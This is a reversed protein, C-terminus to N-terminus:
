RKRSRDSYENSSDRGSKGSRSRKHSPSDTDKQKDGVSRKDKVRELVESESDSRLRKRRRSCHPSRSKSRSRHRSKVYDSNDRFNRGENHRVRRTEAQQEVSQKGKVRDNMKESKLKSFRESEEDSKEYFNNDSNDRNNRKNDTCKESSMEETSKELNHRKDKNRKEKIDVTSASNSDRFSHNRRRSYKDPSVSRERSGCRYRRHSRPSDTSTDNRYRSSGTAAEKEKRCLRSKKRSPSQSRKQRRRRSPTSRTRSRPRRRPPSRRHLVPSNRNCKERSQVRLRGKEDRLRNRVAPNDPRFRRKQRMVNSDSASDSDSKCRKRQSLQSLSLRSHICDKKSCKCSSEGDYSSTSEPLFRVPSIRNRGSAGKCLAISQKKPTVEMSKKLPEEICKFAEKDDDESDSLEGEEVSLDTDSNEDSADSDDNDNNESFQSASGTDLTVDDHYDIGDMTNDELLLIPVGKAEKETVKEALKECVMSNSKSVKSHKKSDGVDLNPKPKKPSIIKSLIPNKDSLEFYRVENKSDCKSQDSKSPTRNSRRVGQLGTRDKSNECLNSPEKVPSRAKIRPSKRLTQESSTPRDKPKRRDKEKDPQHSTFKKGNDVKPENDSKTNVRNHGSYKAKSADNEWQKTKSYVKKNGVHHINVKDTDKMISKEIGTVNIKEKDAVNSSSILKDIDESSKRHVHHVQKSGKGGKDILPKNVLMKKDEMMKTKEKGHLPKTCKVKNIETDKENCSIDDKRKDLVDYDKPNLAEDRTSDKVIDDTDESSRTKCLDALTISKKSNGSSDSSGFIAKERADSDASNSSDTEGEIDSDSLSSESENITFRKNAKTQFKDKKFNDSKLGRSKDSNYSTKSEVYSNSSYKQSVSSESKSKTVDKKREKHTKRGELLKPITFTKLSANQVTLSMSPDAANRKKLKSSKTKSIYGEYDGLKEEFTLNENKNLSGTKTTCTNSKMEEHGNAAKAVKLPQTKGPKNVGQVPAKGKINEKADKRLKPDHLRPITLKLKLSDNEKRQKEALENKLMMHEVKLKMIKESLEKTTDRFQSRVVNNERQKAQHQSDINRRGKEKKPDSSTPKNEGEFLSHESIEKSDSIDNKGYKNNKRNADKLDTEKNMKDKQETSSSPCSLSAKNRDVNKGKEKTNEKKNAEIKKNKVSSKREYKNSNRKDNSKEKGPSTKKSVKAPFHKKNGTKHTESDTTDTVSVQSPKKRPSRRLSQNVYKDQKETNTKTCNMDDTQHRKSKLNQKKDREKVSVNKTEKKKAGNKKEVLNLVPKSSKQKRNKSSESPQTDCISKEAKDPRGTKSIGKNDNLKLNDKTIESLEESAVSIKLNSESNSKRQKNQTDSNIGSYKSNKKKSVNTELSKSSGAKVVEKEDQVVSPIVCMENNKVTQAKIQVETIQDIKKGKSRPSLNAFKVAPTEPRSSEAGSSPSSLKESIVTSDKPLLFEPIEDAIWYPNNKCPIAARENLDTVSENVKGNKVENDKMTENKKEVGVTNESPKGHVTKEKCKENEFDISKGTANLHSNVNTNKFAVEKECPDGQKLEDDSETESDSSSGSYSSCTSCDTPHTSGSSSGSDGSSSENDSSSLEADFNNGERENDVIMEEEGDHRKGNQQAKDVVEVSKATSVKKSESADSNGTYSTKMQCSEIKENLSANEVEVNNAAPESYVDKDTHNIISCEYINLGAPNEETNFKEVLSKNNQLENQVCNLLCQLMHSRDPSIGEAKYAMKLKEPSTSKPSNKNESLNPCQGIGIERENDVGMEVDNIMKNNLDIHKDVGTNIMVENGINDDTEMPSSNSKAKNMEEMEVVNEGFSCVNEEVNEVNETQNDKRELIEPKDKQNKLPENVRKIDDDSDLDTESNSSYTEWSSGTGSEDSSSTSEGSYSSGSDDSDSFESEDESHLSDTRESMINSGFSGDSENGSAEATNRKAEKGEYVYLDKIGTREEFGSSKDTTSHTTQDDCNSEMAEVNLSEHNNNIIKEELSHELHSSEKEMRVKNTVCETVAVNNRIDADVLELSKRSSNDVMDAEKDLYFSDTINSVDEVTKSQNTETPIDISYNEEMSIPTDMKDGATISTLSQGTNSDTNTSEEGKEGVKLDDSFEATPEKIITNVNNLDMNTSESTDNILKLDSNETTTVLDSSEITKSKMQINEDKTDSVDSESDSSGSSSCSDSSSTNSDSQSSSSSSESDVVSQEATIEITGSHVNNKNCTHINELESDVDVSKLREAANLCKLTNLEKDDVDMKDTNDNVTENSTQGLENERYTYDDKLFEPSRTKDGVSKPHLHRMKISCNKDTCVLNQLKGSSESSITDESNETDDTSMSIDGAEDSVSNFIDSDSVSTISSITESTVCRRVRKRRKTRSDLRQLNRGKNNEASTIIETTEVCEESIKQADAEATCINNTIVSTKGSNLSSESKSLLRASRRRGSGPTEGNKSSGSVNPSTNVSNCEKDFKSDAQNLDMKDGNDSDDCPIQSEINVNLTITSQIDMPEFGNNQFNDYESNNERYKVTNETLFSHSDKNHNSEGSISENPILEDTSKSKIEMDKVGKDLKGKNKLYNKDKSKDSDMYDTSFEGYADEYSTENLESVDASATFYKEGSITKDNDTIEMDSVENSADSYSVIDRKFINQGVEKKNNKNELHKDNITRSSALDNKRISIKLQELFEKEADLNQSEKKTIRKRSKKEASKSDSKLLTKCTSETYSDDLVSVKCSDTKEVVSKTLSIISSQKKSIVEGLDTNQKGDSIRKLRLKERLDLVKTSKNRSDKIGSKEYNESDEIKKVNKENVKSEVVTYNENENITVSGKDKDRDYQLRDGSSIRQRNEKALEVSESDKELNKSNLAQKVKRQREDSSKTDSESESYRKSSKSDDTRRDKDRRRENKDSDNTRDRDSDNTRDRNSYNTRDRNSDNTRSKDSDTRIKSRIDKEKDKSESRRRDYKDVSKSYEKRSRDTSDDDSKSYKETDKSYKKPSKYKQWKQRGPSSVCLPDFDSDISTFSSTETTTERQNRNRGPTRQKNTM